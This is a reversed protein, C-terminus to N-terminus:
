GDLLGLFVLLLNVIKIKRGLERVKNEVKYLSVASLQPFKQGTSQRLLGVVLPFLM